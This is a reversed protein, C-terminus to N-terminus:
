CFSVYVSPTPIKTRESVSMTQAWASKKDKISVSSTGVLGGRGSASRFSSGRGMLWSM